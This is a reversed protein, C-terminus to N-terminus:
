HFRSSCQNVKVIPLDLSGIFPLSSFEPSDLLTRPKPNLMCAKQKEGVFCGNFFQIMYPSLLSSKSKGCCVPHCFGVVVDDLSLVFGM